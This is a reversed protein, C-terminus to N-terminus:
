EFPIERLKKRDNLSTNIEVEEILWKGDSRLFYLTGSVSTEDDFIMRFPIDSFDSRTQPVGFRREKIAPIEETVFPSLLERFYIEKEALFFVPDIRKENITDWFREATRILSNEGRSSISTTYLTDILPDTPKIPKALNGYYSKEIQAIVPSVVTLLLLSKLLLHPWIWFPCM